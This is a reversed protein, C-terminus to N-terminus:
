NFKNLEVQQRSLYVGNQVGKWKGEDPDWLFYHEYPKSHRPLKHLWQRDAM